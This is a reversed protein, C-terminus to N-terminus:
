GQLQVEEVVTKPVFVTITHIIPGTNLATGVVHMLIGVREIVSGRVQISQTFNQCDCM